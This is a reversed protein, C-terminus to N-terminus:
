QLAYCVPSPSVPPTPDICLLSSPDRHVTILTQIIPFPIFLSLLLWIGLLHPAASSCYLAQCATVAAQLYSIHPPLPQSHRVLLPNPSPPTPARRPFCSSAPAVGCSGLPGLPFPFYPGPDSPSILGISVLEHMRCLRLASCLPSPVRTLPHPPDSLSKSSPQTRLVPLVASGMLPRPSPAMPCSPLSALAQINHETGLLTSLAGVSEM